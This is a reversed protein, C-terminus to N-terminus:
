LFKQGDEMKTDKPPSDAKAQQELLSKIAKLLEVRQNIKWYWCFIERCVLFIIISIVLSILVEVIGIGFM